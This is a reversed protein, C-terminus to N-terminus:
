QCGGASLRRIAWRMLRGLGKELAISLVIIAATWAFLDPTELYIKANYLNGGISLSTNALVEAAVGAKWAMGIGIDCAASFYSLVSPVYIKVLTRLKGFHYVQAMELLNKDTEAIGNSVNQWFLPLVILSATFVPIKASTLWVMALIIFSAVPTAKIISVIPYFLTYCLKSRSTAVALLTGTILAIVFGLLIRLMSGTITLWFEETRALEGLRCLVSFPSVLLIEEQVAAAAIQWLILWVAASFVWRSIRGFYKVPKQKKSRITFVTM